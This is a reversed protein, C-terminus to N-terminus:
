NSYAYQSAKNVLNNLADEIETASQVSPFNADITVTQNVNNSNDVSNNTYNNKDLGYLNSSIKNLANNKLLALLEPIERVIDVASLINNTDEKNLVLEKSHLFALKGSGDNWSGTYGGTDYSSGWKIKEDTSFNDVRKTYGYEALIFNLLSELSNFTEEFHGSNTNLLKYLLTGSPNTIKAIKYNHSDDVFDQSYLITAKQNKYKERETRVTGISDGTPNIPTQVRGTFDGVGYQQELARATSYDGNKYAQNAKNRAEALQRVTYSDNREKAENILDDWTKQKSSSTDSTSLANLVNGLRKYIDNLTVASNAIKEYTDKLKNNIEKINEDASEQYKQTKENLEEIIDKAGTIQEIAQDYQNSFDEYSQVLQEYIDKTYEVSEAAEDILEQNHSLIDALITSDDEGYIGARITELSENMLSLAEQVAEDYIDRAESAQQNLENAMEQFSEVNGLSEIMKSFDEGWTPLYEKIMDDTVDATSIGREEAIFSIIDQQSTNFLTGLNGFIEQYQTTISEIMRNRTEEDAEQYANKLADQLGKYQSQGESILSSYNSKIISWINNRADDAQSQADSVKDEDEAYVYSYNGQSDRKLRMSTKNAQAEELAIQAVLLEYRANALDLDYKSLKNKEELAKRQAEMAKTLKSQISLDTTSNIQKTYKAILKSVQYTSEIKDLYQSAAKTAREWDDEVEQLGRGFTNNDMDVFIQNITNTFKDKINQLSSELSSQLSSLWSKYNEQYKAYVEEDGSKLAEDMLEKYKEVQQRQYVLKKNNAEIVKDLYQNQINYSNDGFLLKTLSIAHNLENSIAEYDNVVNQVKTDWEDIASIYADHASTIAEEYSTMSEQLKEIYNKLDELLASQNISQDGSLLKQYMDAKDALNKSLAGIDTQFTKANAKALDANLKNLQTSYARQAGQVIKNYWENFTREFESTDLQMDVKVNLRQLEIEQLKNKFEEIQDETDKLSEEWLTKYNDAQEKYRDYQEDSLLGSNAANTIKIMFDNYNINGDEDFTAGYSGLKGRLQSAEQKQLELKKEYAAVQANLLENQQNLNSLLDAGILKEQQNQLKELDRTIKNIIRDIKEYRDVQYEKMNAQSDTGGKLLSDLNGLQSEVSGISKIRTQYRNFAEQVKKDNLSVNNAKAMEATWNAFAQGSAMAAEAGDQMAATLVVQANATAYAQNAADNKAINELDTQLTEYATAKANDLRAQILARVSDKNIALQGNQVELCSLYEDDMTLITELNDITIKGDSNYDKAVQVLSQYNSQVNGLGKSIEEFNKKNAKATKETVEATEETIEKVNQEAKSVSGVGNKADKLKNKADELQNNLSDFTIQQSANQISFIADKFEDTNALAKNSIIDYSGKLEPFLALVKDKEDTLTKYANELDGGDNIDSFSLGDEGLAVESIGAAAVFIKKGFDRGYQEQLDDLSNDVQKSLYDKLEEPDKIEMLKDWDLLGYDMLMKYKPNDQITKYINDFLASYEDKDPSWGVLWNTHSFKSFINQKDLDKQSVKYAAQTAYENGSDRAAAEAMDLLTNQDYTAFQGQNIMEQVKAMFASYAKDAEEQTSAGILDTGEQGMLDELTAQDLDLAAQHTEEYSDAIGLQERQAASMQEMEKATYTNEARGGSQVRVIDDVVKSTLEENDSTSKDVGRDAVSTLFGWGTKLLTGIGSKGSQTQANTLTTQADLKKQAAEKASENQIKNYEQLAVNYDGYKKILDDLINLESGMSSILDLKSSNFEAQTISGNELQEYLDIYSQANEKNAKIQEQTAEAEKLQSEAIEKQAELNDKQIKNYVIFGMEVAALAVAAVKLPRPMKKIISTIKQLGDSAKTKLKSWFQEGFSNFSDKLSQANKVQEASIVGEKAGKLALESDVQEWNKKIVAEQLKVKEETSLNEAMQIANIQELILAKEEESYNQEALLSTLKSDLKISTEELPINAKQLGVLAEDTKLKNEQVSKLKEQTEALEKNNKIVKEQNESLKKDRDEKLATKKEDLGQMQQDYSQKLKEKKTTLKKVIVSNTTNKKLGMEKLYKQRVEKVQDADKSLLADIDKQIEADQKDFDKKVNKKETRNIKRINNSADKKISSQEKKLKNNINEHEEIQKELSKETIEYQSQITKLNAKEKEQQVLREENIKNQKEEYDKTFGQFDGSSKPASKLIEKGSMGDVSMKSIASTKFLDTVAKGSTRLREIGSVLGGIGMSLAMVTQLIKEGTSLDDNNWISGLNNLAQIAMTLSMVGSTLESVNRIAVKTEAEDFTNSLFQKGQEVQTSAKERKQDRENKVTAFAASSEKRLTEQANQKIQDVSLVAKQLNKFATELQEVDKVENPIQGNANRLEEVSKVAENIANNTEIWEQDDVYLRVTGFKEVFGELNGYTKSFEANFDALADRKQSSSINDVFLSDPDTEASLISQNGIDKKIAEKRNSIENENFNRNEFYSTNKSLFSDSLEKQEKLVELLRENENINKITNNVEEVQKQSLVEEYKIRDKVNKLLNQYSQSNDEVADFQLLIRQKTALEEAEKNAARYNSIVGALGNAIQNSFVKTGISGLLLLTNGGGGIAQVFDTALNVAKTMGDLLSKITDDDILSSYLEEFSTKLRQAHADVSEMYIAQQKELTGTSNQAIKLNKNFTDWNDMLAVLQTYQRTGAVQQALAVQQDKGLVQWKSGLEDLIDDMDKLEGSQTKIQIGVKELAQSYTGLSTGDELTKGLELDQMRAFLTKFATGVVDASQRTEAVVTALATTAYEYSLGVTDAVAAFKDLGQAIEEASSATSAGLQALVDGFYELSKSGDDFNNWIATMYDSVKSASEGLANSMKITVDTRATAEEMGLGQQFYILSADTYQRTAAGLAKASANAKVAFEDMHEASEGSVIRIQNLSYDLNQVYRYAQQISTTFNKMISSSIGWKITNGMTESMKDLFTESKQLQSNTTLVEAAVQQFAAKGKEGIGALNAQITQLSKGSKALQSEFTSLNLKGLDANFSNELMLSLEAASEKAANLRNQMEEMGTSSADLKLSVVNGSRIEQLASKAAQLGSIDTKFSLKNEIEVGPVKKQTAM